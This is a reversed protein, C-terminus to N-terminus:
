KVLMAPFSLLFISFALFVCRDYKPDMFSFSINRVGVVDSSITTKISLTFTFSLTPRFLIGVEIKFSRLNFNRLGRPLM